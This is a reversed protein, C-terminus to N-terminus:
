HCIQHTIWGSAPLQVKLLRLWIQSESTRNNSRTLVSTSLHLYSFNLEFLIHIYSFLGARTSALAPGTAMRAPRLRKELNGDRWKALIDNAIAQLIGVKHSPKLLTESGLHPAV